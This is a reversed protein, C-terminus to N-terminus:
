NGFRCDVIELGLDLIKGRDESRQSRVESRRAAGYGQRLRTDDKGTESKEGLEKVGGVHSPLSGL